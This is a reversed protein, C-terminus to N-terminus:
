NVKGEANERWLFCLGVFLSIKERKERRFRRRKVNTRKVHPPFKLRTFIVQKKKKKKRQLQPKHSKCACLLPQEVKSAFSPALHMILNHFM